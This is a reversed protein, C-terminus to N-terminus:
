NNPLEMLKIIIKAVDTNDITGKFYEQGVGIVKVPVKMATHGETGWAIGAKDGLITVVRLTLPKEASHDLYDRDPDVERREIFENAYADYLWKKEAKTLELGKSTDGLGFNTQILGLVEEFSIKRKEEKLNKLLREFEQASIKQNQFLGLNFGNKSNNGLSLGGTEHDATVIILTEDKHNNYFKVAEKIADDFAITEYISSALDNSHLAWDIKGGEIMMFFGKDNDLLEIGKKTFYSLPISETRNDIEWYYERGSYTGPNVAVIKNDGKKLDKIEKATTIYKYGYKDIQHAVSNKDSKTGIDHVGGGAFFDFNSLPLQLAIEKYDGRSKQHAFFSAPTAHDIAVSSLIGVKYGSKKAKEAITEQKTNTVPDISVMHNNTKEGTAMASGSASSDTILSSASYTTMFSQVPFQSFSLPEYRGHGNLSAKYMETAYISNDGMGDGIFLFVYKATQQAFGFSAFFMLFVVIFKSLRNFIM